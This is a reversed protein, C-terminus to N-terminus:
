IIIYYFLYFYLKEDNVKIKKINKFINVSM